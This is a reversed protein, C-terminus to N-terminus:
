VAIPDILSNRAQAVAPALTIYATESVIGKLPKKIAVNNDVVASIIIALAPMIKTFVYIYAADEGAHLM